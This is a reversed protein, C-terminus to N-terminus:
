FKKIFYNIRCINISCRNIPSLCPLLHHLCPYYGHKLTVAIFSSQHNEVDSGISYNESIQANLLYKNIVGLAWHVICTKFHCDRQRLNKCCSLFLLFCMNVNILYYGFM